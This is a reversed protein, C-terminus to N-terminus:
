SETPVALITFGEVDLPTSDSVAEICGANLLDESITKDAIERIEGKAMSIVGFFSVIARYKM